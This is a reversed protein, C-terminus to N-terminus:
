CRNPRPRSCSAPTSPCATPTPATPWCTATTTSAAAASKASASTPTLNWTTATAAFSGWTWTTTSWRTRPSSRTATTTGHTAFRPRAPTSVFRLPHFDCPDGWGDEDVDLWGDVIDEFGDCASSPAIGFEPDCHDGMGDLDTDVQNANPVVPCNDLFDAHGDRDRDRGLAYDCEAGFARFRVRPSSTSDDRDFIRGAIQATDTTGWWNDTAWVSTTDADVFDYTYFDHTGQNSHIASRTITLEPNSYLYQRRLDVGYKTNGVFACNAAHVTPPGKGHIYLGTQNLRATVGHLTAWAAGGVDLGYTGHNFEANAITAVSSGRLELGDWDGVAPVEADSGFLAPSGVAGNVDITGEIMFDPKPMTKVTLVEVGPGVQLTGTPCVGLDTTLQYPKDTLDWVETEDCVALDPCHADLV